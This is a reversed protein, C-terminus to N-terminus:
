QKSNKTGNIRVMGDVFTETEIQKVKQGIKM